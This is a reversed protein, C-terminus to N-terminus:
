IMKRVILHAGKGNVVEVKTGKPLYGLESLAQFRQGEILVHGSPKLDTAAEGAKGILSADFSSATYGEQTNSLFFTDKRGSRKLHWIAFRCTLATGIATLLFYALDWPWGLKQLHFFVVGGTLLLGGIIGLLIGPLFFELYILLFGILSIAIALLM